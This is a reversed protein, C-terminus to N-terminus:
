LKLIMIIRCNIYMLSFFHLFCRKGANFHYEKMKICIVYVVMSVTIKIKM